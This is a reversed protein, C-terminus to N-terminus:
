VYQCVRERCSARGIQSLWVQDTWTGNAAELGQNVVKFEVSATAGASVRDPAVIESVTLDPRPLTAVLITADDVARNNDEGGHEYVVNGADTVVIVEYNDSVKVPLRM